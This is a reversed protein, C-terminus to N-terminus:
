RPPASADSAARAAGADPVPPLLFAPTEPQRPVVWVARIGKPEHLHLAVSHREAEEGPVRAPPCAWPLPKPAPPDPRADVGVVHVAGSTKVSAIAEGGVSGSLEGGEEAALVWLRRPQLPGAVGVSLDVDVVPPDFTRGGHREDLLKAEAAIPFAETMPDALGAFLALPTLLEKGAGLALLARAEFPRATEYREKEFLALLPPRARADGIAGLTEAIRPRLPVYDLSALLPLVADAARIRALAVLLEKADATDLRADAHASTPGEDRWWAALEAKGRPDGQLAFALSAARRWKPDDDKVLRQALARAPAEAAAGIRVVGLSAWRKVEEDEDRAAARTAQALVSPAALRFTVEAAKRRIVVNADDLLGAVDEAADAEGQLGRRLADPWAVDAAEYRGHDREIAATMARLERAVAPMSAARDVREEPDRRVDYLACARIKRACLLRLDGRALMSQDDTEAYALGPDKLREGTQGGGRADVNALVRGLDRGRVRAPRPIGLASLVTPLLDITQVVTPVRRPVVGPGSVLLPVRVQEEYCTTGHYRGGHEGFEEGHDATVIVALKRGGRKARVVRLLEGIAADAYAVESDYADVPM